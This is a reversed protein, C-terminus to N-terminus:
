GKKAQHRRAAEHYAANLDRRRSPGTFNLVAFLAHRFRDGLRSGFHGELEGAPLNACLVTPLFHGVRYDLVNYLLLDADNGGSAVGVEDIALLRAHRCTEAIDEPMEEPDCDRGPRGYSERLRTIMDLHRWYVGRGAARVIAATLHTKGNGVPGLLLLFGTPNAAFERAKALNTQLEPTDATFNEFSCRQHVPQFGAQAVRCVPCPEFICHFEVDRFGPPSGYDNHPRWATNAETPEGHAPCVSPVKASWAALAAKVTAEWQDNWPFRFKATRTSNM